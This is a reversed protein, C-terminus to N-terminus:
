RRKGRFAAIWQRYSFRQFWRDVIEASPICARRQVERRKMWMIPLLSLFRALARLLGPPRRLALVVAKLVTTLVVDPIAPLVAPGDCKALVLLRNSWNLEEVSRPRSRSAGQRAHTATAAPEYWAHWGRMAARWDLDVDEFYAFLDEDFVEPRPRGPVEIAVDDLMARRHLALAGTVGFVPGPRTYQGAHPEGEGRNRFMRSRFAVHGTSDIAGGPRLLKGQVSGRRPDETLAAVLLRVHDPAAVVDPNCVLVAEATDAALADNLAGAYGRNSDERIVRVRGRYPAVIAAFGDSSANDVVVIRLPQHDQALLADLCAPLLASTDHNVVVATVEM